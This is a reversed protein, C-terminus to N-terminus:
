TSARHSGPACWSASPILPLGAYGACIARWCRAHDNAEARTGM